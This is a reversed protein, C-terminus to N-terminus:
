TICICWKFCPRIVGLRTRGLYWTQEKAKPCSNGLPAGIILDEKTVGRELGHTLIIKEAKRM